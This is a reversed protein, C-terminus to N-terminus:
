AKQGAVAQFTDSVIRVCWLSLDFCKFGLLIEGLDALGYVFSADSVLLASSIHKKPCISSM